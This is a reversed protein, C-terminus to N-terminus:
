KGDRISAIIFRADVLQITQIYSEPNIFYRSIRDIVENRFANIANELMAEPVMGERGDAFGKMHQAAIADAHDDTAIVQGDEIARAIAANAIGRWGKETEGDAAHFARKIEQRSMNTQPYKHQDPKIRYERKESWVPHKDESWKPDLGATSVPDWSMGLHKAAVRSEIEAGDAWAKIVEAHNHPKMRGGWEKQAGSGGM